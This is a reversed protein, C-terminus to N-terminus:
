EAPCAVLPEPLADDGITGPEIRIAGFTSGSLSAPVPSMVMGDITGCLLNESVILGILQIDALAGDAPCLGPVARGDLTAGKSTIDFTGTPTVPIDALSIADGVPTGGDGEPPCMDVKLATLSLDVVAGDGSLEFTQDVIFRVDLTGLLRMTLLFQGTIDYLGSPGADPPPAADVVRKGFEDFEGKPDVCAVSFLATMAFLSICSLRFRSSM